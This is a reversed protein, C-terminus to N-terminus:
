STLQPTVRVGRCAQIISNICGRYMQSLRYVKGLVTASGNITPTSIQLVQVATGINPPCKTPATSVGEM